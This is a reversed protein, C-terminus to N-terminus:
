FILGVNYMMMLGDLDTTSTTTFDQLPSNLSSIAVPIVGLIENSIETFDNCTESSSTDIEVKLYRNGSDWQISFISNSTGGIYEGTGIKHNVMGFKDTITSIVEEYELNDENDIISFKMCINQNSLPALANEIGPVPEDGSPNYIVAQYSIGNNQADLNFAILCLIILIVKRM